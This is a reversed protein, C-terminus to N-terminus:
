EEELFVLNENTKCLDHISHGLPFYELSLLTPLDKRKWVEYKEEEPDDEDCDISDGRYNNYITIRPMRLDSAQYIYRDGLVDGTHASMKVDLMDEVIQRVADFSLESGYLSFSIIKTM